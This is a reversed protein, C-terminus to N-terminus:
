DITKIVKLEWKGRVVTARLIPRLCEGTKPQTAHPGSAGKIKLGNDLAQMIRARDRELDQPRNTVGGKKIAEAAMFVSDRARAHFETIKEGIRTEIEKIIRQVEPDPDDPRFQAATITGEAAPGGALIYQPGGAAIASGGLLQQTMGQRRIEVAIKGADGSAASLVIADPNMSKLKTVQAAVSPDESQFTVKDEETLNQVGLQKLLSPWFVTGMFKTMADKVDTIIAVKKIGKEKVVSEIVPATTDTDPAGLRFAWPRNNNMLGEKAPSIAIIPTKLQNAIPFSVECEGSPISGIIALVEDVAILRRMINPIEDFKAHTEYEFLKVPVGNFGGLTNLQEVGLRVGIVNKVGPAGWPGETSAISGIKVAPGQLQAHVVAPGVVVVCAVWVIGALVLLGRRIVQPHLYVNTNILCCM